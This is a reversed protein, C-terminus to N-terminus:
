LASGWVKLISSVISFYWKQLFKKKVQRLAVACNEKFIALVDTKVDEDVKEFTKWGFTSFYAKYRANNELQM